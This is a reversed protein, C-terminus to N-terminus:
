SSPNQSLYENLDKIGIRLYVVLSWFIFIAVLWVGYTFPFWEVNLLAYSILTMLLATSLKGSWHPEVSVKKGVYHISLIWILLLIDRTFYLVIFWLPFHEMPRQGPICLVILGAFQLGKDAVPDLIKGLQSVLHYKRALYGDVFDSLAAAVFIWFAAFLLGNADGKEAPSFKYELVLLM